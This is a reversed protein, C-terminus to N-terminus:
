AGREKAREAAIRAARRTLVGALQRRYEATGRVDDIPRAAASAAAACAALADDDLETGILADASTPVLLPTPAVAGLAVRAATCRGSADLTVSVGAGVVAIDMESRPIFRLYADATRPAPRPLRVDVLVEGSGLATEGPGRFLEEVPIEREGAPGAVHCRAGAAILAPATDAAPSGNCLNGGVSARGQIQESGILAIAEVVGPWLERVEAHERIEAACVAAGLRLEEPGLALTTLEPIRKLDVVVGPEVHGSKMQVLLDTGGALARPEDGNAASLLAIADPLTRPAEYRPSQM